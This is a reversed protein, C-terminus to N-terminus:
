RVQWALAARLQELEGRTDALQRRLSACEAVLATITGHSFALDDRVADIAAIARAITM